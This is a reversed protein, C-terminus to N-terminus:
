MMNGAGSHGFGATSTARLEQQQTLVMRVSVKLRLQLGAPKHPGPGQQVLRLLAWASSPASGFTQALLQQYNKDERYGDTQTTAIPCHGM